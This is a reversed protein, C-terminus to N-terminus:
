PFNMLLKLFGQFIWFDITTFQIFLNHFTMYYIIIFSSSWNM